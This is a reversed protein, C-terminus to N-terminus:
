AQFSLKEVLDGTENQWVFKPECLVFNIWDLLSHANTRFENLSLM